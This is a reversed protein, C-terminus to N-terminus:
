FHVVGALSSQGLRLDRNPPAQRSTSAILARERVDSVPKPQLDPHEHHRRRRLRRSM